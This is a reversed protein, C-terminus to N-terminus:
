IWVVFYKMWYSELLLGGDQLIPGVILFAGLAVSKGDQNLYWVIEDKFVHISHWIIFYSM